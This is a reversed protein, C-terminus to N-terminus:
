FLLSLCRFFFFLFFFWPGPSFLFYISKLTAEELDLCPEGDLCRAAHESSCGCAFWRQVMGPYLGESPAFAVFM